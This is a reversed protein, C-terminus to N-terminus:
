TPPPATSRGPVVGPRCRWAPLRCRSVSLNVVNWEIGLTDIAPPAFDKNGLRSTTAGDQRRGGAPRPLHRAAGPRDGSRGRLLHGGPVPHSCSHQMRTVCASLPRCTTTRLQPLVQRTRGLGEVGEFTVVPEPYGGTARCELELEEGEELSVEREAWQV